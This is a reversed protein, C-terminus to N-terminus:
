SDIPYKLIKIGTRNRERKTRIPEFIQISFQFLLLVKKPETSSGFIGFSDSIGM